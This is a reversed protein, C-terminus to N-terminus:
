GDVDDERASRMEEIDEPEEPVAGVGLLPQVMDEFRRVAEDRKESAIYPLFISVAAMCIKKGITVLVARRMQEYQHRFVRVRIKEAMDMYHCIRKDYSDDDPEEKALKELTRIREYIRDLDEKTKKFTFHHALYERSNTPALENEALNRAVKVVSMLPSDERRFYNRKYESITNESFAEKGEEVLIRAIRKPSYGRALLEDIQPRLESQSIKFGTGSNM